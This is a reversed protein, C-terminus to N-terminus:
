INDRPRKPCTFCSYLSTMAAQSLDRDTSNSPRTTSNSLRTRKASRKTSSSAQNSAARGSYTTPQSPCPILGTAINRSNGSSTEMETSVIYKKIKQVPTFKIGAVGFLRILVSLTTASHDNAHGTMPTGCGPRATRPSLSWDISM